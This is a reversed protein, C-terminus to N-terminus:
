PFALTGPVLGAQTVVENAVDSRRQSHQARPLAARIREDVARTWEAWGTRWNRELEAMKAEDAPMTVAGVFTPDATLIAVVADSHADSPATLLHRGDVLVDGTDLLTAGVEAKGAAHPPIDVTVTTLEGASLPEIDHLLSPPLGCELLVRAAVPAPNFTTRRVARTEQERGSAARNGREAVLDRLAREVARGADDAQEGFLYTMVWNDLAQRDTQQLEESIAVAPRRALQQFLAVLDDSQTPTFRRPDVLPLMSLERIYTHLVGDGGGRRGYVEAMLHAWSTNAIAAFSMPNSLDDPPSSYQFNDPILVGEALTPAFHREGRGKIWCVRGAGMAIRSVQFWVPRVRVQPRLAPIGGSRRSGERAPFDQTEGYRIYSLTHRLRREELEARTNTIYLLRWPSTDAEEVLLRGELVGPRRVLPKLVERELVHVAGRGDKVVALRQRDRQSRIGMQALSDPDQLEELCFYGVVRTPIGSRPRSLQGLPVLRDGAARRLAGISPPEVLAAGWSRSLTGPFARAAGLTGFDATTM